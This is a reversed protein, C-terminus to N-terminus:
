RGAEWACGPFVCVRKGQRNVLIVYSDMGRRLRGLKRKVTDIEDADGEFVHVQGDVTTVKLCKV